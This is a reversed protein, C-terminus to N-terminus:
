LQSSIFTGFGRHFPGDGPPLWCVLAVSLTKKAEVIIGSTCSTKLLHGNMNHVCHAIWLIPELSRFSIGLFSFSSKSLPKLYIEAILKGKGEWRIADIRRKVSVFRVYISWKAVVCVRGMWVVIKVTWSTSIKRREFLQSPGCLLTTRCILRYLVFM